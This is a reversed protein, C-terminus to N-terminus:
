SGTDTGLALLQITDNGALGFVVVKGTPAFTGLNQGNLTVVVQGSTDDAPQVTILDDGATGGVYLDGDQLLAPVVNVTQTVVSSTGNDKDTATVTITYTGTAAYTHGLSLGSQYGQVAYGQGDGWTVQYTFLSGQDVPSPDLAAVAFVQSQGPVA